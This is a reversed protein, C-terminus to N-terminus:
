DHGAPESCARPERDGIGDLSLRMHIPAKTGAIGDAPEDGDVPRFGLEAYLHRAARNSPEVHLTLAEHGAAAAATILRRCLATGIGRGQVSQHVFVALEPDPADVPTYVAHGLISGDRTAVVNYGEDVLNRLWRRRM